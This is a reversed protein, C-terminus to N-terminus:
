NIFNVIPDVTNRHHVESLTRHALHRRLASKSNRVIQNYVQNATPHNPHHYKQRMRLKLTNTNARLVQERQELRGIRGMIQNIRTTLRAHEQTRRRVHLLTLRLIHVEHHNRIIETGIDNLQRKANSYQKELRVNPRNM